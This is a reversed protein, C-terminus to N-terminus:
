SEEVKLCHKTLLPSGGHLLDEREEGKIVHAREKQVEGKEQEEFDEEETTKLLIRESNRRSGGEFNNPIRAM